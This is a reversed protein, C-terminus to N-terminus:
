HGSRSDEGGGQVLGAQAVLDSNRGEKFNRAVARYHTQYLLSAIPILFCVHMSQICYSFGSKYIM